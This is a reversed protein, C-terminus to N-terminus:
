GEQMRLLEQYVSDAIDIGGARSMEKGIEQVLMNRYVKEAHGGGFPGDTKLGKFMPKLMQSMFTAEFEEAAERLEETDRGGGGEALADLRRQANQTQQAGLRDRTQLLQQATTNATPSGDM